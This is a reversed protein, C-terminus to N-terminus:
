KSIDLRYLELIDTQLAAVKAIDHTDVYLQVAEPMGGVVIYSLFLKKMTDHVSQSVPILM